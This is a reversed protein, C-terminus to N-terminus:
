PDTINLWEDYKSGFGYYWQDVMADEKAEPSDDPVYYRFQCHM